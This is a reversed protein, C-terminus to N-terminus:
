LFKSELKEHLRKLSKNTQVNDIGLEDDFVQRIKKLYDINVKSHLDKALTVCRKVLYFEEKTLEMKMDSSWDFLPRSNIKDDLSAKEKEDMM